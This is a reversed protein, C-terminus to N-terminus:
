GLTSAFSVVITGLVLGFGAGAALTMIVAGPLSLGTVAVYVAFFVLTVWVPKQEFVAQFSSQSEKIFALSLYSGLDLAFFASIGALLLAAIFLKRSNM